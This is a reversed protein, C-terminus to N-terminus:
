VKEEEVMAFLETKLMRDLYLLQQIKQTIAAHTEITQIDIFHAPDKLIHSLLQQHEIVLNKLSVTRKELALLSESILNVQKPSHHQGIFFLRDVFLKQFFRSEDELFLLQSMWEKNQLYLEQLEASLQSESITEM